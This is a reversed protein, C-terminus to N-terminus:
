SKKSIQPTSKAKLAAKLYEINSKYIEDKLDNLSSTLKGSLDKIQADPNVMEIEDVFLTGRSLKNKSLKFTFIDNEQENPDALEEDESSSENEDEKNNKVEKIDKIPKKKNKTVNYINITKLFVEELLDIYEPDNMKMLKFSCENAELRSQHAEMSLMQVESFHRMRMIESESLRSNLLDSSNEARIRAIDADRLKEELKQVSEELTVYGKTRLERMIIVMFDCFNRAAEDNSTFLTQYLGIETLLLTNKVEGDILIKKNVYHIKEEMIKEEIKEYLQLSNLNLTKEVDDVVFYPERILGYIRINKFLSIFHKNNYNTLNKESINLLNLESM